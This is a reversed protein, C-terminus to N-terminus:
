LAKYRGSFLVLFDVLGEPHPSNGLIGRRPLQHILTAKQM